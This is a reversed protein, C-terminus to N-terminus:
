TSFGALDEILEDDELDRARAAEGHARAAEAPEGEFPEFVELLADIAGRTSDADLDKAGRDDGGAGM